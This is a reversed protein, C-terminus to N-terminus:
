NERFFFSFNKDRFDIWQTECSIFHKVPLKSTHVIDVEFPFKQSMRIRNWRLAPPHEYKINEANVLQSAMVILFLLMLSNFCHLHRSWDSNKSRWQFFTQQIKLASCYSQHHTYAHTYLIWCWQVLHLPSNDIVSLEPFSMSELFMNWSRNMSGTVCSLVTMDSVFLAKLARSAKIIGRGLMSRGGSNKGM